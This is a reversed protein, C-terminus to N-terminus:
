TEKKVEKERKRQSTLFERRGHEIYEKGIKYYDKLPPIAFVQDLYIGLLIGIALWWMNQFIYM